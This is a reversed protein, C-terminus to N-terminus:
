AILHTLVVLPGIDDTVQREVGDGVGTTEKTGDTRHHREEDLVLEPVVVQMDELVTPHGHITHRADETGILHEELPIATLIATHEVAEGMEEHLVLYRLLQQRLDADGIHRHHAVGAEVTDQLDLLCGLLQRNHLLKNRPTLLTSHPTFITM